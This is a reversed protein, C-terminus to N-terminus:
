CAASPRGPCPSRNSTTGAELQQRFTSYSIRTAQDGNTRFLTLLGAFLAVAFLLWFLTGWGFGSGNPSERRSPDQDRDRPRWNDRDM